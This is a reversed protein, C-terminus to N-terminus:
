FSARLVLTSSLDMKRYSYVKQMINLVKQYFETTTYLSTLDVLLLQIFQFENKKKSNM